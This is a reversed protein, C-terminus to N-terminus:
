AACFKFPSYPFYAGALYKSAKSISNCDIIAAHPPTIEQENNKYDSEKGWLQEFPNEEMNRKFDKLLSEYDYESKYGLESITKSMDHVFQRANPKDPRYIIKSKKKAPSFIEVIGRVQEELTTAIGRGVNYMGGDLDSEVCRRIIQVVDNIYVIEKGRSPDGWIEVDEGRKAQEMIQRYAIMKKVGNVHFYPNPHYGYVTPFRLEFRKIGYQHYYHEILNVATNKCISYVSHDGTLPFKMEFDSPIPGKDMLYNSDARSQAFIIKKCGSLRTYELVNLTGEIVSQVYEHPNYGEMTAPMAGAFHIVTDVDKPLKDFDASNKIDLSYYSINKTAFFGNDSKRRGVAIVDYGSDKLSVSSYAGVLGTAGFIIVRGM